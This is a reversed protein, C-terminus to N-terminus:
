RLYLFELDHQEVPAIPKCADGIAGLVSTQIPRGVFIDFESSVLAKEAAAPMVAQHLTVLNFSFFIDRRIIKRPSVNSRQRRKKGGAARARKRDRIRLKSILNQASEAIDTLIKGGTRLTERGM